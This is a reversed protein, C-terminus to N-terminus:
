GGHVDGEFIAADAFSRARAWEDSTRVTWSLVPLGRSRAHAAEPSPLDRIDYALFDPHAIVMDLTRRVTGLPSGALLRVPPPPHSESIVLGRVIRPAHISLFRPVLPNFSMVGVAGTYNNLAVLIARAIPAADRWREAKAELLLPVKGGVHALLTALRPLPSGDTLTLRDLASAPTARIAGHAPTLRDLMRDHFVYPVGDRSLRIDCEIGHGAAIAADFAPLGNETRDTRNASNHWGRHAFHTATLFAARDNQTRSPVL